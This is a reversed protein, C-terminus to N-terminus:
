RKKKSGSRKSRSTRQPQNRPVPKAVPPAEEATITGGGAAGSKAAKAARRAEMQQHALSGPTPSHRIVYMQQGITWFNSVLWYLLVGVPFFFGSVAMVLPIIYLLIKQQQMFPNNAAEPSLNKLMLQRQAIFQSGAMVVVMSMTVIKVTLDPSKIFTAALEAGFIKAHRASEVLEPTMLGRPKSNAIGDLVRFLALFIPAQALIPLCSSFPNTGTEKYLKMLEQSQRERDDKYKQQIERMRPQLVQMNRTSRIQKVFLPILLIRIIIVLGVISLGWAWGGAEHMGLGTFAKHLVVIIGSVVWYLPALFTDM